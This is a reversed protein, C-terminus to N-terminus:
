KRIAWRVIRWLIAAAVCLLLAQGVWVATDLLRRVRDLPRPIVPRDDIRRRLSDLWDRLPRRRGEDQAACPPDVAQVQDTGPLDPVRWVPVEGSEGILLIAAVCWVM